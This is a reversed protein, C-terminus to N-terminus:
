DVEIGFGDPPPAFPALGTENGRALGRQARDRAIELAAPGRQRAGVIVWRQQEGPLAPAERRGVHPATQLDPRAVRRLLARDMRVGEPVRERGVQELATRIQPGNLLPQAM